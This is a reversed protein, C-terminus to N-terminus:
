QYPSPREGHWSMPSVYVAVGRTKLQQLLIGTPHEPTMAQAYVEDGLLRLRKLGSLESLAGLNNFATSISVYELKSLSALQRIDLKDIMSTAMLSRLNRCHEIGDLDSVDFMDDEGDWFYYPYRYIENGGAFVISEVQDLLGASLPYRALYDSVEDIPDYGEEEIDVPREMVHAALDEPRGLDIAKADLLSSLVVLKFNSDAFPAGKEGTPEPYPPATPETFEAEPNSMSIENVSELTFKVRMIAGDPLTLKGMRVGRMMPMDAGVELDPFEAEAELLAMGMKVGAVSADTFRWDYTISGVLGDRDLRVVIGHTNELVDVVGGKHSAPARWDSGMADEVRLAPMGPRLAALMEASAPATDRAM